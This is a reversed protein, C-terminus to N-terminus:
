ILHKAELFKSQIEDHNTLIFEINRNNLTNWHGRVECDLIQDKDAPAIDSITPYKWKHNSCKETRHIHGVTVVNDNVEICCGVYWTETDNERWLTVCPQGIDAALENDISNTSQNQNNNQLVQM